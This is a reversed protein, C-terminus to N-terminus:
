ASAFGRPSIPNSLAVHCAGLGAYDDPTCSFVIVQLGRDAALDLLRQLKQQRDDDANTFADDFIIPLTGNHGEALIEAMALRFAAAVQEKTGGSLQSFDWTVNGFEGRAVSLKEFRGGAYTIDVATDPGFLTRMYDAVRSTLPAVFQSEVEEKKATFLRSLLKIADAERRTSSLKAAAIRRRVAARAVDERPDVTGERRLQERAVDRKIEADHRQLQLNSVARELRTQERDLTDPTLATLRDHTAKTAAATTRAAESRQRIADARDVGFREVLLDRRAELSDITGRTTQISDAVQRRTATLQEHRKRAATAATSARAADASAQDRAAHSAVLRTHVAAKAAEARRIATDAPDADSASGDSSQFGAAAIPTPDPDLGEGGRRRIEAEVSTIKTTLSELERHAQDGGLGDIAGQQAEIDAAIAQLRANVRRAEAVSDITLGDLAAALDREAAQSARTADALSRGGGPSIRLITEGGPPGVVLESEATITVAAAAALPEGALSAPGAGSVIEVKTAIAELTAAAADRARELKDLRAVDDATIAALKNREAELTAVKRRLGDIRSCRGGLGLQEVTLRARQECLELLAVTTATEQQLTSASDVADFAATLADSAAQEADALEVLRTTAPEISEALRALERDCATIEADAKVIEDRAAEAERAAAEEGALRIRLDGVLRITDGVAKLEDSTTALKAQATTITRDALDITDVAADLSGVLATATAFAGEAQQSEEDARALESGTKIGGDNRFIAAHRAVIERAASADLSSELVGGGGLRGLRDRLQEAPKESNAHSVPDHGSTGQWVWLHSWQMKLRSDVTRSGINEARLLDHIRTEAEDGRLTRGGAAVGGGGVAGGAAVGAAPGEDTLMTTSAAANGAFVKTITYHRGGTEFSLTVTPQGGHLDSQMSKHVNSTGRSKLFFAHHIAEVLTSKGTEQPGGVVTRAPDFALRATKLVRYNEVAVSLLKM